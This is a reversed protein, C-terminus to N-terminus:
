KSAIGPAGLLTRAGLIPHRPKPGLLGECQSHPCHIASHGRTGACQAVSATALPQPQHEGSPRCMFKSVLQKYLGLPWKGSGYLHTPTSKSHDIYTHIGTSNQSLGDMGNTVLYPLLNKPLNKQSAQPDKQNQCPPSNEAIQTQPVQSPEGSLLPWPDSTGLDESASGGM